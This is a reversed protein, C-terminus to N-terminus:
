LIRLMFVIKKVLAKSLASVQPGIYLTRIQCMESIVMSSFISTPHQLYHGSYLSNIINIIVWESTIYSSQLMWIRCLSAIHRMNVMCLHQVRPFPNHHVTGRNSTSSRVYCLWLSCIYYLLWGDISKLCGGVLWWIYKAPQNDM